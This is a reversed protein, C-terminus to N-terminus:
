LDLLSFNAPMTSLVEADASSKWESKYFWCWPLTVHKVLLKLGWLALKKIIM